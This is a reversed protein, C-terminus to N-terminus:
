NEDVMPAGTLDIIQNEILYSPLYFRRYQCPHFRRRQKFKNTAVTVLIQHVVSPPMAFDGQYSTLFAIIATHDHQAAAILASQLENAGHSILFQITALQNFSAAAYLADNLADVKVGHNVLEHVITVHGYMAVHSLFTDASSGQTLFYQIVEGQGAVAVAIEAEYSIKIRQNVLDKIVDLNGTKAAEKLHFQLDPIEYRLCYIGPQDYTSSGPSVPLVLSSKGIPVLYHDFIERYRALPDHCKTQVFLSRPFEFDEWVKQTWFPWDYSLARLYCCTRRIRSLDHHSLEMLIKLLLEVPLTELCM